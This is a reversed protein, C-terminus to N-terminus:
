KRRRSAPPEPPEWQQHSPTLLKTARNSAAADTAVELALVNRRLELEVLVSQDVAPATVSRRITSALLETLPVGIAERFNFGVLQLVSLMEPTVLAKIAEIQNTRETKGNEEGESLLKEITPILTDTVFHLDEDAISHSALEQHMLQGITILETKDALLDNIIETLETIQNAHDRNAKATRIRDQVFSATNRISVEALNLTIQAIEPPIESM